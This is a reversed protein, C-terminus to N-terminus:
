QGDEAGLDQLYLTLAVRDAVTLRGEWAPMWGQRGQNITTFMAADDGGYIWADDTLDPSGLEQSGKANEGHCSACNEVFITEGETLREPTAATGMGSLSQVYDVVTRIQPRSLTGTEGFAPMQAFRTEPHPSNIGVRLTEMITEPDGGWLWADDVLSPFGPGGAADAGHCAACNDGFLSPATRRVHAMLAPDERIDEVPRTALAQVWQARAADASMVDREVREHDDYGLIGKTYTTVLPWAPMLVWYVLAWVHTIGIAWWIPRPVRTNLETIGNWEHGTTEHGTLPDREKVAM